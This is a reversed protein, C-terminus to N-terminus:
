HTPFPPAHSPPHLYYILRRIDPAFVPDAIRLRVPNSRCPIWTFGGAAALLGLAALAALSSVLQALLSIDIEGSEEHDAEHAPGIEAEVHVSYVAAGSTGDVSRELHAHMGSVAGLAISFCVALILIRRM